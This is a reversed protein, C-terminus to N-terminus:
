VGLMDAVYALGLDILKVQTPTGTEVDWGRLTYYEDLMKDLDERSIVHGKSDGVELTETM